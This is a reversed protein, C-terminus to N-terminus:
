PSVTLRKGELKFHVHEGEMGKLLTTLELNRQIRGVFTQPPIDGEYVVTVDYWRALQRMTTQLDAHDFHFYGNKWATVEDIDVHHLTHLDGHTSLVSQEAPKLMVSSGAHNFKISGDILTARETNEDSYAMLNFSTGLVDVEGGAAPNVVKVKFPHVADKAVEFYAEGSLEVERIAGAFFVPYRLTSANNLWVRTGDPLKLQFQGARPTALTNYTPSVPKAAGSSSANGYALQDDAVKAVVTNGQSALVGTGSSDLNIKRGDDLTLTAKNGAPLLAAPSSTSQAVTQAPPTHRDQLALYAAGAAALILSAAAVWRWPRFTKAAQSIPIVEAAFSSTEPSHTQNISDLSEHSELWFGEKQLRTEVKEWIRTHPMDSLQSFQFETSSPDDKIRRLLETRTNDQALWDNLATQEETTLAEERIYKKVIQDIDMEQDM